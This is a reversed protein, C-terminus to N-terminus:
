SSRHGNGGPCRNAKANRRLGAYALLGLGGLGFSAFSSPEPTQVDNLGGWPAADVDTTTSSMFPDISGDPIQFTLGYDQTDITLDAKLSSPLNADLQSFMGAVLAALTVAPLQTANLAASDTLGDYGFSVDFVSPNGNADLGAM